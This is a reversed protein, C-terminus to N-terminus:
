VCERETWMRANHGNIRVLIQSSVSVYVSVNNVAFHESEAAPIEDFVNHLLQGHLLSALAFEFNYNETLLIESIGTKLVSSDRHQMTHM